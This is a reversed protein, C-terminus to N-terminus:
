EGASHGAAATTTLEQFGLASALEGKLSNPGAGTIRVDMLRGLWAPDGPFNVITNGSTRGALETERRRSVGDVLV